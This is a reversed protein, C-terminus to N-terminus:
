CQALPPTHAQAPISSPRNRCRCVFSPPRSQPKPSPSPSPGIVAADVAATAATPGRAKSAKRRVAVKSMLSQLATAGDTQESLETSSRGSNSDSLMKALLLALARQRVRQAPPLPSTVFNTSLLNTSLFTLLRRVARKSSQVKGGHGTGTTQRNFSPVIM